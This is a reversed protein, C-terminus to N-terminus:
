GSLSSQLRDIYPQISFCWSVCVPIYWWCVCVCVSVCVCVQGRVDVCFTAWKSMNVWVRQLIYGDRASERECVCVCVCNFCCVTMYGVFPGSLIWCCCLSPWCQGCCVTWCWSRSRLWFCELGGCWFMFSRWIQQKSLLSGQDRSSKSGKLVAACLFGLWVCQNGSAAVKDCAYRMDWAQRGAQRREVAPWKCQSSM